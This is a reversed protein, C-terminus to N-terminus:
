GLPGARDLRFLRRANAATISAVDEPEVGRHAAVADRVSGLRRHGEDDTEILLREGPIERVVAAHGMGRPSISLFFGAEIWPRIMEKPGAFDHVMGGGDFGEQRLTELCAGHARVCHIILPLELSKALRVQAAFAARQVGKPGGRWSKDLGTEGIAVPPREIAMLELRELLPALGAVTEPLHWPHLGIAARIRADAAALGAALAESELDVGPVIWGLVGDPHPQPPTEELHAHADFM